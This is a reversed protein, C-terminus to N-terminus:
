AWTLFVGVPEGRLLRGWSACHAVIPRQPLPTGEIRYPRGSASTVKLTGSAAIGTFATLPTSTANVSHLLCNVSSTARQLYTFPM